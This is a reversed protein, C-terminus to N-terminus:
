HHRGEELGEGRDPRRRTSVVNILEVRYDGIRVGEGVRLSFDRSTTDEAKDGGDDSAAQAAPIAAMLFLAMAVLYIPRM